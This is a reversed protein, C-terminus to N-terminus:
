RRADDQYVDPVGDADADVSEEACIRRYHRNRLRLLVAALVAPLLFTLAIPLDGLRGRRARPPGGREATASSRPTVGTETTTM